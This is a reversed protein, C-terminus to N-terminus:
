QERNRFSYPTIEDLILAENIIEKVEQQPIDNLTKFTISKVMKRDKAELLGQENSLEYGRPFGLEVGEPKAPNFYCIWSKRYYFPIKYSLKSTVEPFSMLLEHLYLMIQKRNEDQRYIYDLVPTM